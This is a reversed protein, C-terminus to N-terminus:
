DPPDRVTRQQLHNSNLQLLPPIPHSPHSDLYDLYQLHQYIEHNEEGYSPTTAAFSPSATSLPSLQPAEHNRQSLRLEPVFKRNM